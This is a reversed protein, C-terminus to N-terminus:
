VSRAVRDPQRSGAAVRAAEPRTVAAVLNRGLILSATVVGGFLAGTVGLTTVDAGTLYLNRVPTPAGLSRLRFRAPVSSLGDIDGQPYNAFHRTSLPRSLGSDIYGRVPPVHRELM